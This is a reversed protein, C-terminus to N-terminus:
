IAFNRCLKEWFKQARYNTKGLFAATKSPDIKDFLIAHFDCAYRGMASLYVADALAKEPLAIFFDDRREYGEYLEKKLRTFSFTLERIKIRKTRKVAASEIFNQQQQTSVEYYSLATTLSIYSPTQLLSAIRFRTEVSMSQFRTQLMYLDPKLRVIVGQGAYRSATVRASAASIGLVSAIDDAGFIFKRISQLDQVRM